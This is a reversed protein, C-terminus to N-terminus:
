ALFVQGVYLLTPVGGASGTAADMTTCSTSTRRKKKDRECLLTEIHLFSDTTNFNTPMM